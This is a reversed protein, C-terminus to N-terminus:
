TEFASESRIKEAFVWKNGLRFNVLSCCLIAIANATLVPIQAGHVLLPMLALNGVLSVLGNSFQFRVLRGPLASRAPSRDRWTSHLHWTFNHVLTLELAGATAALYHGPWLRNIAALVGLQVAMGLAGVLNFKVWRGPDPRGSLIPVSM